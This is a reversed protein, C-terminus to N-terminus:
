TPKGQLNSVFKKMLFPVLAKNLGENVIPSDKPEGAIKSILMWRPMIMM